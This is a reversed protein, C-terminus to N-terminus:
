ASCLNRRELSTQNRGAGSLGLVATLEARCGSTVVRSESIKRATEFWSAGGTEHM